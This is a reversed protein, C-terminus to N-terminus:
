KKLLMKIKFKRTQKPFLDSFTKYLEKLNNFLFCIDGSILLSIGLVNDLDGDTDNNFSFYFIEENLTYKNVIYKYQLQFSHGQSKFGIDKLLDLVEHYDDPTNFFLDRM